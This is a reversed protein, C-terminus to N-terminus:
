RRPDIRGDQLRRRAGVAPKVIQHRIARDRHGFNALAIADALAVDTAHNAQSKERGRDDFPNGFAALGRFEGRLKEGGTTAIQRQTPLGLFLQEAECIWGSQEAM